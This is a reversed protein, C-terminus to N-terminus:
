LYIAFRPATMEVFTHNLSRALLGAELRPLNEKWFAVIGLEGSARSQMDVDGRQKAIRELEELSSRASVGDLNLDIHGKIELCRERLALDKQAIPKLLITELEHSVDQLNSSEEEVGFRSVHAYLENRKDGLTQYRHELRAYIPGAAEWNGLKSSRDAKELDRAEPTVHSVPRRAGRCGNLVGALVGVAFLFKLTTWNM